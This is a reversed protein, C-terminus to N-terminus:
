NNESLNVNVCIFKYNNIFNHHMSFLSNGNNDTMFGRREKKSRKRKLNYLSACFIPRIVSPLFVKKPWFVRKIAYCLKGVKIEWIWVSIGVRVLDISDKSFAFRKVFVSWNTSYSVNKDSYTTM